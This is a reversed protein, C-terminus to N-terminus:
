YKGKPKTIQYGYSRLLDVIDYAIDKEEYGENDGSIIRYLYDIPIDLIKSIAAMNTRDPTGRNTEWKAIASKSVTMKEALQEQTLYMQRRRKSIIQGLMEENKLEM